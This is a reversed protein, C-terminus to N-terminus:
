YFTSKFTRLSKLSVTIFIDFNTGLNHHKYEDTWDRSWNGVALYLTASKSLFFFFFSKKRANRKFFRKAEHMILFSISRLNWHGFPTQVRQSLFISIRASTTINISTQEIAALKLTEVALYLTVCKYVFSKKRANRGVFRKVVYTMPFYISRLNWHSFPNQVWQSLFISIRASTTINISTQEIAALKLTEVALYLTVWKYVFSKKRANRGVFRKVVYTMLFYISRLNWHSSPNQVWQSLFISIRASTTINISTQEIAAKLTEVTLYLTVCKYLFSKNRANRGVFRKVVYTILCYISSLNWHGFPNQVQQSLFISIRASKHNKYEDTWDRSEVNRCSFIIIYCLQVFFSKNRANRGVFRKNVYTILFYISRLNWHSFPNQIWQSLM